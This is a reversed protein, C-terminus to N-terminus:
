HIWEVKEVGSTKRIEDMLSFLASSPAQSFVLDFVDSEKKSEMYLKIPKLQLQTCSQELFVLSLTTPSASIRLRHFRFKKLFRRELPKLGALILLLLITTSFSILYLGAGVALGIAAVAWVSAATTLGRITKKWFLITGAGLFGIGSVVQAAVRSPDLVVFDSRLVDDFGFQSVIMVLTAGVCVLMHTRLGAFRNGLEREWGIFGGLVVSLILRFIYEPHDLM